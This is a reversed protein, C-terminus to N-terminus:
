GTGDAGCEGRISPILVSFRAKMESSLEDLKATAEQEDGKAGAVVVDFLEQDLKEASNTALCECVAEPVGGAVCQDLIAKRGPERASCAALAALVLLSVALRRM